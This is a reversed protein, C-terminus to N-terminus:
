VNATSPRVARSGLSSKTIHCRLLLRVRARSRRRVRATRVARVHFSIFDLNNSLVSNNRSSVVGHQALETNLLNM